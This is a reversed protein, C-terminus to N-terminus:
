RRARVLPTCIPRAPRRAAPVRQAAARRMGVCVCAVRAHRAARSPCVARVCVRRVEDAPILGFYEYLGASDKHLLAFQRTFDSPVRPAAVASRTPMEKVRWAGIRARAQAGDALEKTRAADDSRFARSPRSSAIRLAAARSSRPAIRTLLPAAPACRHARGLSM